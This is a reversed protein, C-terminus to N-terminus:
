TCECSSRQKAYLYGGQCFNNCGMTIELIRQAENLQSLNTHYTIINLVMWLLDRKYMLDHLDQNKCLFDCTKTIESFLNKCYNLYCQQLFEM